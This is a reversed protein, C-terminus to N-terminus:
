AADGTRLKDFPRWEGFYEPLPATADITAKGQRPVVLRSAHLLMPGGPVGYVRDGAIGRGFAERAHVRIQHTRGTLPQFEVLTHGDRVALRRWRTVAEHGKADAVMKWGALESSVKALSADITGSEEGVEAAIVALYYKEVTRGEFAQQYASRARATRAFLLCGSTDTDLRHMATPPRQFGCNLEDIRAAISEGGRRPADVPLGAPKDLVLAEADIFLIRDSLLM